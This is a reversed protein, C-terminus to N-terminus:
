HYAYLGDGAETLGATTKGPAPTPAVEIPRAATFLPPVSPAPTSPNPATQTPRHFRPVAWLIFGHSPKNTM